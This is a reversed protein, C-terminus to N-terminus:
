SLPFDTVDDEGFAVRVRDFVIPGFQELRAPELGYGITVHPIWPSHQEPLEGCTGVEGTCLEHASLLREGGILYVACPEEGTPNFHASAWVVAEVTGGASLVSALEAGVERFADREGEGVEGLFFLTLHLVSAPEWGPLALRVADDASPVLAIMGGAHEARGIM